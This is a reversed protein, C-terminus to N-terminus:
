NTEKQKQSLIHNRAREAMAELTKFSISLTPRYVGCYKHGVAFCLKEYVTKEPTSLDLVDFTYQAAVCMELLNRYDTFNEDLLIMAAKISAYISDVSWTRTDPKPSHFLRGSKPVDEVYEPHEPNFADSFGILIDYTREPLEPYQKKPMTLAQDINSLIESTEM